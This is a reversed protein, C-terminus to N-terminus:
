PTVCDRGRRAPGRYRGASSCHRLVECSGSPLFSFLFAGRRCSSRAYIPCTAKAARHRELSVDIRQRSFKVASSSAIPYRSDPPAAPGLGSARFTLNGLSLLSRLELAIELALVAVKVLTLQGRVRGRRPTDRRVLWVWGFCSWSSRSGAAVSTSRLDLPLGFNCATIWGAGAVRPQGPTEGLSTCRPDGVVVFAPVILLDRHLLFVRSSATSKARPRGVLPATGFFQCARAVAVGYAVCVPM